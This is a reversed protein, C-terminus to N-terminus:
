DQLIVLALGEPLSATSKSSTNNEGSSTPTVHAEGLNLLLAAYEAGTLEYATRGDDLTIPSYDGLYDAAEQSTVTRETFYAAREQKSDALPLEPEAADAAGDPEAPSSAAPEALAEAAAEEAAAAAPASAAPAAYAYQATAAASETKAGMGPLSQVAVVLALCAAAMTPLAIWARRKKKPAAEQAIKAMVAEHFGEPLAASEADPFAARIALADDVYRQCAPCTDLHEQVKVMDEADLEGDVYLDLLAEYAKCINM